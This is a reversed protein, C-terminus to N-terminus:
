ETMIQVNSYKALYPALPQYVSNPRSGGGFVPGCTGNPKNGLVGMYIGLANNQGSLVAGESDSGAGCIAAEAVKFVRGNVTQTSNTSKQVGCRWGSTGGSSCVTSNLIMQGLPKVSVLNNPTTVVKRYLTHVFNVNGFIIADMNDVWGNAFYDGIFDGKISTGSAALDFYVSKLSTKFEYCHAATISGPYVVDIVVNFGNTCRFSVDGDTSSVIRSGGFLVGMLTMPGDQAELSIIDEEIGSILIKSKIFELNQQYGRIVLKNKEDDIAIGFILQEGGNSLKNFLTLIKERTAELEQYSYKVDVILFGNEPANSIKTLNGGGKIAVVQHAVKHEDYKIWTGAFSDALEAKIEDTNKAAANIVRDNKKSAYVDLGSAKLAAEKTEHYTQTNNQANSYQAFSCMSFSAALMPFLMKKMNKKIM